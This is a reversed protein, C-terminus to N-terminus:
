HSIVNTTWNKPDPGLSTIGALLGPLGGAGLDAPVPGTISLCIDLGNRDKVCSHPGQALATPLRDQSTPGADISLNSKGLQFELHLSWSTGSDPSPRWLDAETAVASRPLGRISIPLAVPAEGVQTQRAIHVMTADIPDHDLYYGHLDAWLGARVQWVLHTDGDNTPDSTSSSVWFAARGNIRPATIHHGGGVGLSSSDPMGDYLSLWIMPPNDSPNREAGTARMSFQGSHLSYSVNTADAPLWGFVGPSTLPDTGTAAVGGLQQETILRANPALLAPLTLVAAVLLSVGAGAAVARVTRRRRRVLHGQRTARHADITSPPGPEDALRRLDDPLQEIHLPM